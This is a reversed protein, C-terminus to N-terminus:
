WHREWPPGEHLAGLIIWVIACLIFVLLYIIAWRPPYPKSPKHDAMVTRRGEGSSLAEREPETLVLPLAMPSPTLRAQVSSALKQAAPSDDTLRFGLHNYGRTRSAGARHRRPM